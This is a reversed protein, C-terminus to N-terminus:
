WISARACPATTSRSPPPASPRSACGPTAVPSLPAMGEPLPRGTRRLRLRGDKYELCDLRTYTGARQADGAQRNAGKKRISVTM